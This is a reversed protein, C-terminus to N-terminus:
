KEDPKPLCKRWITDVVRLTEIDFADMELGYLERYAYIEAHSLPEHHMGRPMGARLEEYWVALYALEPPPDKQRRQSREALKAWKGGFKALRKLHVSASAGGIEQASQFRGEMVAYFGSAPRDETPPRGRLEM